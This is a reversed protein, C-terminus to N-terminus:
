QSAENSAVAFGNSSAERTPKAQAIDHLAYHPWQGRALQDLSTLPQDLRARYIWYHILVQQMYDHTERSPLSEIFLLPDSGSDTDARHSLRGPGGNYAALLLLLNDGIMPQEALRRVYNQGLGLNIVPDFFLDPCEQDHRQRTAQLAIRKGSMREATAPMLQMLGCAGQSSVALPDFQSEHRILAYILAREVHFGGSPQWPPLPYLAADYPKGEDNVAMGGLKLALFPMHGAEALALMAKQLARRGQPNLRRLESEALDTQGIQVLALARAGAPQSALLSASRQNLEPLRWSWAAKADRGSLNAALLGYFSHSDNAAEALWANAEAERGAHKLARYAWFAAAAHDGDALDDRDVLKAFSSSAAAMDGQRFAGLGSIWLALADDQMYTAATLRRAEGTEGNYFYGAALRAQLSVLDEKPLVTQQLTEELLNKAAAPDGRHLAQDIRAESRRLSAPVPAYDRRAPLRFGSSADYGHGAWSMENIVAPLTLKANKGDPLRRALQYLDEAEPLDRYSALWAQMEALSAARRQYRDALVHGMLRKDALRAVLRDAEAWNADAQVAFIARYLSADKDTLVEGNERVLFQTLPQRASSANLGGMTNTIGVLTNPIFNVCIVIAAALGLSRNACLFSTIGAFM